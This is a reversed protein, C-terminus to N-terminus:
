WKGLTEEATKSYGFDIVRTFFQVGGDIQRARLLEQTRIVGVLVGQEPGLLNQGGEGRNLSLYGMRVHRGRSFYAIVATNEDDPLAAIMLASGTVCLGELSSYIRDAGALNGQGTVRPALTFLALLCLAFVVSQRSR